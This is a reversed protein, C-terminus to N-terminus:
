TTQKRAAGHSACTMPPPSPVPTTRNIVNTITRSLKVVAGRPRSSRENRWFRRASVSRTETGTLAATEMARATAPAPAQAGAAPM